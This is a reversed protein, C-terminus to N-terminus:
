ILRARLCGRLGILCMIGVMRYDLMLFSNGVLNFNGGIMLNDFRVSPNKRPLDKPDLKAEDDTAETKM